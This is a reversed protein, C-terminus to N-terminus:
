VVSSVLERLRQGLRATDAPTFTLFGGGDSYSSYRGEATDFWNLVGTRRRRGLRDLSNAALQGGGHRPSRVLTAITRMDRGTVGGQNLALELGAFGDSAFADVAHDFVSKPLSVQGGPGPEFEPVLGLVEDVLRERPVPGARIEGGSQVTMVGRSGHGRRTGAPQP